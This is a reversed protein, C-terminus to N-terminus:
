FGQRHRTNYQEHLAHNATPSLPLPGVTGSDQTYMDMDKAYGATYLVYRRTWGDPGPPLAQFDLQVEEGPGIVIFAGDVKQALPLADGLRTYYGAPYRTDWFPVRDQYDYQPRQQSGNTRRAFGSQSVTARQLGLETRIVGDAPEQPYIVALRDWYIQLNSRIRLKRTGQPLGELPVSMQRPMGAPYGFSPYVTHWQGDAGAAELTPAFYREDAQWAAFVTQSYPYEVWGDALLVPNNHGHKNYTDLPKDFELTVARQRDLRGLYRPHLDGPEAANHDVEQVAATVDLGDDRWGRVPRVAHRYFLPKGTVMPGGTWMREDLTMH